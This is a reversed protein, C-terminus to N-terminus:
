LTIYSGNYKIKDGSPSSVPTELMQAILTFESDLLDAKHVILAPLTRCKDDFDGHHQLFISVLNYYWKESYDAIIEDKYKDVFEIGLYRHTVSSNPQYVGINMERIKGIDHLLAGLIVLDQTDSINETGLLTPYTKIISSAFSVVKYTHALLGGKCNDHHSSAAFEIKFRDAVEKNEFLVKNAYKMAKESLKSQVLAILGTFYADINYKIPLFQDSTFGEVAVIDTITISNTGGFNDFEGQIFVPLGVYNEDKLKSFAKSNGWAKFQISVGSQLEGSIYEKGTKTLQVSYNKCLIVGRVASNQRATKLIEQTIINESM